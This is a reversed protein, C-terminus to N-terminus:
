PGANVIAAGHIMMQESLYLSRDLATRQRHQSRAFLQVRDRGEPNTIVTIANVLLGGFKIM